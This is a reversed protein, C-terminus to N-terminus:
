RGEREERIRAQEVRQDLGQIYEGVWKIVNPNEEGARFALLQRKQELHHLSEPGMWGGTFYNAGFSSRVDERGGYRVLVERALCIKGDERFLSKPVLSALYWARSDVDADVWEWIKELPIVNLAGTRGEGFFGGGRLWEKIHFARTDIPPGLYKTARDWISEPHQGAIENLVSQAHSHFSDVITGQEGYHELMKDVLELSSEPHDRVFAKAIESWDYDDRSYARRADSSEFWSPHTLLRFTIDKPLQYRPDRHRYFM